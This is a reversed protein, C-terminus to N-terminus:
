KAVKRQVTLPMIELLVEGAYKEEKIREEIVQQEIMAPTMPKDTQISIEYEEIPEEPSAKTKIRIIYMFEKPLNWTTTAIIKATPYRDRRVFKLLGEKAKKNAVSRWDALMDGRRYSLGKAKMDKIFRTASLGEAVAGRMRAVIEARIIGM